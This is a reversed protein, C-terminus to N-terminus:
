VHKRKILKSCCSALARFPGISYVWWSILWAALFSIIASYLFYFSGIWMLRDAGTRTSSHYPIDWIAIAYLLFAGARYAPDWLGRFAADLSWLLLLAIAVSSVHSDALVQRLSRKVSGRSSVM